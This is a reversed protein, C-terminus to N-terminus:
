CCTAFLTYFTLSRCAPKHCFLLTSVTSPRSALLSSRLFSRVHATSCVRLERITAQVSRARAVLRESCRCTYRINFTGADAARLWVSGWFGTSFTPLPYYYHKRILTSGAVLLPTRICIPIPISALYFPLVSMCLLLLNYRSIYFQTLFVGHTSTKRAFSGYVFRLAHLATHHFFAPLFTLICCLHCATAPAFLCFPVTVRM